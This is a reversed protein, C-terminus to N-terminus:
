SALEKLTDVRFYREHVASLHTCDILIHRVTLCESQNEVKLLYSNTLRTHGIRFRNNVVGDYCSLSSIKAHHGIVSQSVAESRALKYKKNM